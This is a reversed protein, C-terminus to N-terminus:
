GIVDRVRWGAESRVILLSATPTGATILDILVAGGMREIVVAEGRAASWRELLAHRPDAEHLLLHAASGPHVTSATCSAAAAGGDGRDGSGGTSSGSGAAARCASWRTVLVEVVAQWEGPEPHLALEPAEGGASPVTATPALGPDLPADGAAAEVGASSSGLVLALVLAGVGAAGALLFRPRVVVAGWRAGLALATSRVPEIIGTPLGVARAADLAAQLWSPVPPEEAVDEPRSVTSRATLPEAVGVAAGGAGDVAASDVPERGVMELRVPLPEALDFLVPALPRDLEAGRVVALLGARGPEAVAAAVTAGLRAIAARDAAYAPERDRLREPLVPGVRADQLRIVVPAGSERLRVDAASLGIGSLGVAHAAELAEALPALLTVAEGLALQGHRAALVTDLPPGGVQELLLAIRGDPLTVLDDLGVVHERLAPVARRVADHVAVEADILSDPCAADIVRAVRTAGDAHVLATVAREGASLVRVVRAGDITTPLPAPDAPLRPSVTM